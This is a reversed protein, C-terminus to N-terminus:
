STARVTTSGAAPKVNVTLMSAEGVTGSVPQYSYVTGVLTYKPNTATITGGNTQYLFTAGTSSGLLPFFVSDTLSTGYDQFLELDWSDESLGVLYAKSTSNMATVEVSDFDQNITISKLRSTLDTGGVTFKCATSGVGMLYIAM